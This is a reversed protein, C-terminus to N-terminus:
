IMSFIAGRSTATRPKKELCHLIVRQSEFPVDKGQDGPWSLPDRVIAAITEAATGADFARKGTVMEYLVCGLAFIDSPADAKEGRVQEPSMYGVTGIVMGAETVPFTSAPNGAPLSASPKVRAVGFDLIKVRGDSTLFINAPKLDRHVIGKSHTAALGDAIEAATKVAERWPMAGRNLRQFLTEGELWETVAYHLGQESGVDYIALINPHSLAAVAKAEHRFRALSAQSHALSRPLVKIAVDRDLRTDKARYVEGMGGAGILSIVEYHSLKQGALSRAEKAALQQAAVDLAPQKLFEGAQQEAQLLTEVEQRLEADGACARDLFEARQAAPLDLLEELLKDIQQWREPKM